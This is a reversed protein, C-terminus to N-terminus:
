GADRWSSVASTRTLRSARGRMLLVSPPAEEGIRLYFYGIGALGLMLNQTARPEGCPWGARAHVRIGYDAVREVIGVALDDGIVRRAEHMVEANGCLGHCLSFNGLGTALCSEIWMRTTKAAIQAEMRARLSGTVEYARLRSLAIGPAGHCWSTAHQKPRLRRSRGEIAGRLDSWNQAKADFWRREYRFAEEACQVFAADGTVTSLELMAHGVGAAGHSFGTLNRTHPFRPSRWSWGADSREASQMLSRGLAEAADLLSRDDVLDNLVILAVIAGASGSLLDFEGDHDATKYRRILSKAGRVLDDAELALGARAAAVAIGPGGTYLGIGGPNGDADISHLAQRMAALATSRTAADGTRRHLEALFLSVGSTGSYLSADLMGQAPASAPEDGVPPSTSGLWNCRGEHWFAESLIQRGIEAAAELFGGPGAREGPASPWSCSLPCPETYEDFSGPNLYPRKLDIGTAAFRKEVFECMADVSKSGHERAEIIGDALLGCRHLGFSEGGPPSEALGLGPALPKTFVPALRKLHVGISRYTDAVISAAVPYCRKPLCLVAADCRDFHARHNIIKLTFPLGAQNLTRTTLAVFSVAGEPRLNWYFRVLSRRDDDDLPADSTAVYYGPSIGFLEKPLRIALETGPAPGSREALRIQDRTVGLTLGAKSVVVTGGEGTSGDIRAVTWGAEWFGHGGNANSLEATFEADSVPGSGQDGPAPEPQALGCCYFGRYLQGQM